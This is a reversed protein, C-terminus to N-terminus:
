CPPVARRATGGGSGRSMHASVNGDRSPRGSRGRVSPALADRPQPPQTPEPLAPTAPEDGNPAALDILTLQTASQCPRPAPRQRRPPAESRQPHSLRTVGACAAVRYGGSGFRGSDNLQPVQEVLGAGALAALARAVTDKNMSVAGALSRASAHAVFAPGDPEGDGLLLEELVVWAVPSLARRLEAATQDVVISTM